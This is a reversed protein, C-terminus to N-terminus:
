RGHPEDEDSKPSAGPGREDDALRAYVQNLEVGLTDDASDHSLV